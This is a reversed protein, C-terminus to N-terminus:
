NLYDKLEALTKLAELPSLNDLDVGELKKEVLSKGAKHLNGKKARKDTRNELDKLVKVANKTVEKPVGVLDVWPDMTAASFYLVKLGKRKATELIIATKGIGHEGRFLVNMNNDVFSDLDKETISKM